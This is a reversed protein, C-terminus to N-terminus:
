LVHAAVDSSNRFPAIREMSPVGVWKKGGDGM